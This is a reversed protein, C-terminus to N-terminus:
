AREQPTPRIDMRCLVWRIGDEDWTPPTEFTELPVGALRDEVRVKEDFRELQWQLPTPLLTPILPYGGCSVVEIVFQTVRSDELGQNAVELPLQTVRSNALAQAAVELPMQTVRLPLVAVTGSGSLSPAPAVVSGTGTVPTNGVGAMSPAPATFDGTGTTAAAKFVAMLVGATTSSPWTWQPNEAGGSTQIKYAIALPLAQFAINSVNKSIIFSSDIATPKASGDSNVWIASVFVENNGAPTISGPQGTTGSAVAHSSEADFLTVGDFALMEITPFGSAITTVTFTHGSGVIPSLCYFLRVHRGGAALNTLPIWTNSKSDTVVASGSAAQDVVAVVLVSAGTTDSAGTTSTNGGPSQGVAAAILSM